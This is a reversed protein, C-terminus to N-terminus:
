SDHSEERRARDTACRKFVADNPQTCTSLMDLVDETDALKSENSLQSHEFASSSLYPSSSKHYDVIVGMVFFESAAVDEFDTAGEAFAEDCIVLLDGFAVQDFHV